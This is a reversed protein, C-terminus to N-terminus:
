MKCLVENITWKDNICEKCMFGKTVFFELEINSTNCGQCLGKM